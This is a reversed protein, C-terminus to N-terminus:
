LGRREKRRLRLRLERAAREGCELAWIGVALGLQRVSLSRYRQRLLETYAAQSMKPRGTRSSWLLHLNWAFEPITMKYWRMAQAAKSGM